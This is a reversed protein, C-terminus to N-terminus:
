NAMVTGSPGLGEHEWSGLTFKYELPEGKPRLVSAHRETGSGDMALADAKWPGLSDISGTLYVTGAGEPVDATIEVREMTAPVDRDAAQQGCAAALLLSLFAAVFRIM